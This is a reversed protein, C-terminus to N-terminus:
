ELQVQLHHITMLLHILFAFLLFAVLGVGRGIHYLPSSFALFGALASVYCVHDILMTAVALIKLAFVSM